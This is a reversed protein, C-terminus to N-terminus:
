QTGQNSPLSNVEAKKKWRAQAAKRAIEARQEPTLKKARAKGGKLGGLKGLAQAHPNKAPQQVEPVSEDSKKKPKRAM